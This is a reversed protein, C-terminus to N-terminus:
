LFCQDFYCAYLKELSRSGVPCTENGVVSSVGYEFFHNTDLEEM